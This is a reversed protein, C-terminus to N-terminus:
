WLIRYHVEYGWHDSLFAGDRKETFNRILRVPEIRVESESPRYYFQRDHSGVWVDSQNTRGDAGVEIRCTAPTDLCFRGAESFPFSQVFQHYSPHRPKFNFDGGFILPRSYGITELFGQLDGIQNGRVEDYDSQAQLHTNLVVIPSPMGPVELEVAMLAKRVFCDAGACDEYGLLFSGLIPYNSLIELGSANKFWPHGDDGVLSYPYGARNRIRRSKKSFAEQLLVVDPEDGRARREQLIEGIYALRDLDTLVPIAKVNYSLVSLEVHDARIPSASREDPYAAAPWILM